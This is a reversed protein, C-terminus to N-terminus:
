RRTPSHELSWWSQVMLHISVRHSLNKQRALTRILRLCAQKDSGDTLQIAREEDHNPRPGFGPRRVLVVSLLTDAFFSAKRPQATDVCSLRAGLRWQQCELIGINWHEASSHWKRAVQSPGLKLSPRPAPNEPFASHAVLHTPVAGLRYLSPRVGCRLREGATAAACVFPLARRPQRRMRRPDPAFVPDRRKAMSPSVPTTAPTGRLLSPRHCLVHKVHPRDRTLM